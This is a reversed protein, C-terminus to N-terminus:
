SNESFQSLHPALNHLFSKIRQELNEGPANVAVIKNESLYFPLERVALDEPRDRSIILPEIGRAHAYGLEYMVNHREGTADVIVARSDKLHTVFLDFIRGSQDDRDIRHPLFGTNTVAKALRNDYFRDHEDGFPM